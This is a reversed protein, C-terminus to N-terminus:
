GAAGTVIRELLEALRRLAEAKEDRYSHRDYVGEVGAVAHGMIREAVDSRVQARSMLSRATRRLDHLQWQALPALGGDERAKAIRADLAVKAKSFGSFSGNGRGAFVYPNDGLRPMSQIISLAKSPLVLTGANGKERAETAITWEGTPSLDAWRMTAVKERRQATFLALRVMAGFTGSAEAARWVLRLEEDDLVRARQRAKADTRRMGRVLPPRYEDHRTAFWNMIGRVVSLVYDAQKAGHEDVVEDLLAVVDSRRITLFARDRWAPYIRSKLLRTVEEESRLGKARVHRALWREGVEFFTAPRDPPAEFAPLGARVRSLVERARARAEDVSLVDAAGITTWVQKGEQGRAVTVFTRVGTPAVRVYHGRLEPDPLAYRTSRPKLAAVGNDSLTKRRSM